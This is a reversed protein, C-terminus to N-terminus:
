SGSTRGLTGRLAEPKKCQTAFERGVEDFTNATTFRKYLTPQWNQLRAGTHEPKIGRDNEKAAATTKSQKKDAIVQVPPKEIQVADLFHTSAIFSLSDVSEDKVKRRADDLLGQLQNLSFPKSWCLNAGFLKQVVSEFKGNAARAEAQEIKGAAVDYLFTAETKEQEPDDHGIVRPVLTNGSGKEYLFYRVEGPVKRLLLM